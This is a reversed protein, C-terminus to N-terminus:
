NGDSSDPPYCCLTDMALAIDLCGASSNHSSGVPASSELVPYWIIPISRFKALSCLVVTIMTVCLLWSDYRASLIICM